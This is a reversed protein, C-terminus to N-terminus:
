PLAFVQEWLARVAEIHQELNAQRAVSATAEGSLRSQHQLRRFNRYAAIVQEAREPSTLGLQAASRLLAINGDNQCLAPYQHAYALVWYQVIFEVDIIGGLDHKLDFRPPTQATDSPSLSPERTAAPRHQQLMRQRMELVASRLQVLDRPQRLLDQRIREFEAGIDADGACFRARTLAQHEWIWAHKLQYERFAELSCALLGADGNPRLRLDTEFVIGAMTRSSLWSCLRQVLRAYYEAANPQEDQYIFVLDLDSAYGLEKGGLKGYGIIALKAPATFTPYRLNLQACCLNLTTELLIDALKALHDSGEELSQKGALDRALLRFVQAHHAERLIDMQRETDGPYETLRELLTQRFAPWDTAADSFRPDLLEDLLIPHRNLYEAAWSSSSMLEAVKMLAQPYQQLLALYAGRQSIVQFFDLGRQWTQDPTPTAAAAEILRPGLADLRERHRTPLQLYRGSQRFLRLRELTEDPQSFGLESLQTHAASLEIQEFWIGDCPHVAEAPSSFIQEFHLSVKARHANLELALSDWDSKDMSEAILLRAGEDDPLCHTQADRVYMLRHELRRLFVYADSLEQVTESPLLRREALLALVALTPRIQLLPERGGRILQFVQAMFEIERIGGPGLKIHEARDRRAVERKIQAHLDRMANIAGFDLYKRFVFPRVVKNLAEAWASHLNEGENLLRAKIWAYREWERGQTVFYAELSDLSCVLAGSDGNPRLRMDVRFVQGDATIDDLAAIVRKGLRTSFEYHDIKGGGDSRGCTRGDEPYVFILDIDSSVNLERGGLKGMGIVLLTQAQGAADLAAGHQAVLMKQIAALASNLSLEALTSMTELVEALPALGGLDRVILAAMVHQRLARLRNKLQAEDLTDVDILFAHMLDRKIPQAAHASLWASVEPRTALLQRLYESHKLAAQWSTPAHM